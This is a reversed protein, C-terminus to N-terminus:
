CSSAHYVEKLMQYFEDKYEKLSVTKFIEEEEKRKVVSTVSNDMLNIIASHFTYDDKTLLYYSIYTEKVDEVDFADPIFLELDDYSDILIFHLIEENGELVAVLKKDSFYMTANFDCTKEIGYNFILIRDAKLVPLIYEELKTNLLYRDEKKMILKYELFDNLIDNYRDEEVEHFNEIGITFNEIKFLDFLVVFEDKSILFSSM